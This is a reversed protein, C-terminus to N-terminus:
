VVNVPKNKRFILTGFVVCLGFSLISYALGSGSLLKPASYELIVAFVNNAFHATLPAALTGYHEYLMALFIGFAAAFLGQTLNGHALGFVISSLVIGLIAGVRDRMRRFLLGRFLLEEMLPALVCVVAAQVPRSPSTMMQEVTEYASDRFPIASIVTEITGNLAPAFMATLFFASLNFGNKKPIRVEELGFVRRKQDDSRLLYYFVPIMLADAIATLVLGNERYIEATNVAGGSIASAAIICTYVLLQSVCLNILLPYLCNWVAAPLSDDYAEASGYKRRDREYVPCEAPVSEKENM